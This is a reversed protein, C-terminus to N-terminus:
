LRVRQRLANGGIAGDTVDSSSSLLSFANQIPLVKLVILCKLCAPLIGCTPTLSESVIRRYTADRCGVGICIKFPLSVERMRASDAVSAVM